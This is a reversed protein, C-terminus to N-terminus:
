TEEVVVEEKVMIGRKSLESMFAECPVDLAPSLVGAATIQKRAIMRAVIAATFGVGASMAFLGTQLNREILLYTRISKKRGNKLGEFRNLMAVIDKEDDRYQLYSPMLEALFRHPSVPCPLGTLPTDSLFGLAKLPQWFACWGPWRLSYRGARRVTASVGLLDTYFGADGNPIAELAGLGPFEVQHIMKSAHQDAAPVELRLGDEIFVSDRKQSRLVGDWNWSIKYNIPNDCAKREPLGGCYSDILELRDFQRVAHGCIILDIGPDLGCEPMLAVGAAAAAQHLRRIPKGYNTSVLPVGAELAAEFANVMLPLPLLDIAVDVDQSLLSVLAKSSTGDVQVPRIRSTDLFGELQKWDKLDADACIIDDVPDINVLDVLAAKGQMGLGGLVVIKM